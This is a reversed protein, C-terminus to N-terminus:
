QPYLPGWVQPAERRLTAAEIRALHQLAATQCGTRALAKHWHKRLSRASWPLAAQTAWARLCPPLRDHQAMPNTQRLRLRPSALNRM